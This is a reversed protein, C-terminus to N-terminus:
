GLRSFVNFVYALNSLIKHIVEMINRELLLFIKKLGVFNSTIIIFKSVSKLTYYLNFGLIALKSSLGWNKKVSLPM